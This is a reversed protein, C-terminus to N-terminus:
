NFEYVISIATTQKYAGKDYKYKEAPPTNKPETEYYLLWNLELSFSKSIRSM